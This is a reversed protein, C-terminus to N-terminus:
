RDYTCSYNEYKSECETRNDFERIKVSEECPSVWLRTFNVQSLESHFAELCYLDQRWESLGMRATRFDEAFAIKVPIM